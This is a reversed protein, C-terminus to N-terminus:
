GGIWGEDVWRSEWCKRLDNLENNESAPCMEVLKANAVKNTEAEVKIKNIEGQHVGHM